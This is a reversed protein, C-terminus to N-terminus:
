FSKGIIITPAGRASYLSLTYKNEMRLIFAEELGRNYKHVSSIASYINGSYWGLEFFSLIGGAVYDDHRFLEVAGWIFAGNLFFAVLADQLRGSYLHGAGPLAAALIGAVAPSKRPIIEGAVIDDAFSLAIPYIPSDPPVQLLLDQAGQWDARELRILAKQYLAKANYQVDKAKVLADFTNLAEDYRKDLKEMRGKLYLMQFYLPSDQYSVLFQNAAVIAEPWRKAQFYSEAIRFAAKEAKPVTPNLFIFRKYEGIARFYDGEEYLSEAFGFVNDVLDDKQGWTPSASFLYLFILTTIIRSLVRHTILMNM